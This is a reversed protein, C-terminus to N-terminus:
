IWLKLRVWNVARHAWIWAFHRRGISVHSVGQVGPIMGRDPKARLEVRVKFINKSEVVEASPTISIVELPVRKAPNAIAAFEGKQGAQVEHIDREDVQLEGRLEEPRCIEFLAEGLQVPGGIRQKLDGKVITGECPATLSAQAIQEELLQIEKRVEQAEAELKEGENVNNNYRADDRAKEKALLSARSGALKTKLDSADLRALVQGKTVPDNQDVLVEELRGEFPAPVIHQSAALLTTPAQVTYEGKAFILFCTLGLVALVILKAWTHKPGVAAAAARKIGAAAKAGFWRDQDHLNVTRATALDASLRMAELGEAEFESERPREVTLVGKVEGGHRLPFSCISSPGHRDSLRSAARSVYTAEVASPFIIEVDQDLCEEMAAEMDQVLQMKRSFNETHSIAKLRVGRGHLFGLSVRSAQWRAAFENCLTLAAATFRDHRNLASIVELSDRLRRMDMQRRQLMLQMEYLSLLPSALELREQSARLDRGDRSDVLFASAGRVESRGTYKIPLIILFNRPDAGYLDTSGHLPAVISKGSALVKVAGEAAQSVWDPVQDPPEPPPFITVVQLEGEGPRLIVGAEAASLRCQVALLYRLFEQPPGEFAVLREVLDAATPAAQRM